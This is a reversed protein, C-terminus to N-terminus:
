ANEAISKLRDSLDLWLVKGVEISDDVNNLLSVFEQPYWTSSELRYVTIMMTITDTAYEAFVTANDKWRAMSWLSSVASRFGRTVYSDYKRDREPFLRLQELKPENSSFSEQIEHIRGELWTENPYLDNFRISYPKVYNIALNAVDIQRARELIAQLCAKSNEWDHKEALSRLVDIDHLKNMKNKAVKAGARFIVQWM